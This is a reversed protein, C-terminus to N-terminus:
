LSNQILYTFITSIMHISTFDNKLQTYLHELNYFKKWARSLQAHFKLEYFSFHKFIFVKRAKLSESTKNIISIFALIGVITPMKINILMIFKISLQTSCSFLKIAEPGPRVTTGLKQRGRYKAFILLSPQLLIIQIHLSTHPKESLLNWSSDCVYIYIINKKM